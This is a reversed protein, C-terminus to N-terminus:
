VIGFRKRREALRNIEDIEASALKGATIASELHDRIKGVMNVALFLKERNSIQDVTTQRWAATYGDELVRFAEQLMENNMLDQAKAARSTAKLLAAEDAM